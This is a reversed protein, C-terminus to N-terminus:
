CCSSTPTDTTGKIDTTTATATPSTFTISSSLDSSTSSSTTNTSTSNSSPDIITRSITYSMDLVPGPLKISGDKIKSVMNSVVGELNVKPATTNFSASTSINDNTISTAPPQELIHTQVITSGAIVNTIRLQESPINLVAAIKYIMDLNNQNSFFSEISIDMRISVQVSNGPKLLLICNPDKSVFFELTNKVPTWKSSGCTQDNFNEGDKWIKSKIESGTKLNYILMTIPSPYQITVVVGENTTYVSSSLPKTYTEFTYSYDDWDADFLQFKLLKPITSAFTINYKKNLTIISPFIPARLFSPYGIECSHDMFSNLKNNFTEYPDLDIVNTPAISRSKAEDEKNEYFLIGMKKQPSCALVNWQKVATCSSLIQFPTYIIFSMGDSLPYTPKNTIINNTSNSYNPVIYKKSVSSTSTSTLTSTTSTSISWKPNPIIKSSDFAEKSDKFNNVKFLVNNQGTCPFNGCSFDDFNPRVNEFFFLNDELVRTLVLNKFNHVSHFDPALENTKFVFQSFNCQDEFNAITVDSADMFSGFSADAKPKHTPFNMTSLPMKIGDSVATVSVLFGYQMCEKGTPDDCRPCVPNAKNQGVILAKKLQKRTGTNGSGAMIIIGQLNQSSLINEHIALDGKVFSLYGILNRYSIANGYKFCTLRSPNMVFFGQVSAYARNYSPLTKEFDVTCDNVSVFFGIFESGACTSNTVKVDKCTNAEPCLYFCANADVIKNVKYQEPFTRNRLDVVSVDNLTINQSNMVYVGFRKQQYQVISNMFVQISDVVSVGSFPNDHFSLGYLNSMSKASDHKEFHIASMTDTQGCNTIEANYLNTKGVYLFDIAQMKTTIVNCGWGEDSGSIKINRTIMYVDAREDLDVPPNLPSDPFSVPSEGGYHYYKLAGILTVEGTNNDYSFISIRETETSNFTTTTILLEDGNKWKLSKAVFIKNAGPQASALLKSSYPARDEGYISIDGLNILAKNPIQVNNNVAMNPIFKNGTLTIKATNTYATTNTGLEIRGWNIINNAKLELNNQSPDWFLSGYITLNKLNATSVDLMMNWGSKIVPTSGDGPLVGGEWNTVDSWKRIFTELAAANPATSGCDNNTCQTATISLKNNTYNNPNMGNIRMYFHRKDRNNYSTGYPITSTSDLTNLGTLDTSNNIKYAVGSNDTSAVTFEDRRLTYNFAINLPKDKAEWMISREVALSTFDLGVSGISMLYNYGTVFPISWGNSPDKFTKFPLNSFQTADSLSSLSISEMNGNVRMVKMPQGRFNDSPVAEYFAVRRIQVTDDCITGDDFKPDRKCEKVLNHVYYPCVWAPTSSGTLSGDLDRFIARRPQAWKINMLQTGDPKINKFYTTRGDSDTSASSVECRSCSSFLAYNSFGFNFLKMGDVLFRDARPTIFGITTYTGDVIPNKSKGIILADKVTAMGTSFPIIDSVEMNSVINDAVKFNQFMVNGLREAIVGREKNRYVTVDSLVAQVTVVNNNDVAQCPKSKPNFEPFIRIGYQGNSHSWNNKFSGLPMDRPCGAVGLNLGTPAPPLDMWFGYNHSGAAHNGEFFNSPNTIWFTAPHYDANLLSSSSRTVLGLNNIIRNNTEVADEIFFTHGMVDYAVNNEVLFNNVAHITLARNYTHHIACGKVYSGPIDGIMHFHIPYRGLQFAQGARRVEIYSLKGSTIINSNTNMNMNMATLMIHSGYQQTESNEDGQVIVNRTLLAVEARMDITDNTGYTELDGYHLFELSTDLTITVSQTDAATIASITRKEAETYELSSSAIVIVEGVKWDVPGQITITSSGKTATKILNTFVPTRVLGHLELQGEMVALVKNGFIPLTPDSKSSKMTLEFKNKFRNSETGVIFKGSRVLINWASMKYDKNDEVTLSGNEIVLTNLNVEAVDLLVDTNKIYATEGNAPIYEGGWTKTDSWRDLYQYYLTDCYVNGITDINIELPTNINFKTNDRAIMTLSLTNPSATNDITISTSIKNSFIKVSVIESGTLTNGSSLSFKVTNGGVSSGNNPTIASLTYTKSAQYSVSLNNITVSNFNDMIVVPCVVNVETSDYVVNGFFRIEAISSSNINPVFRIYTFLTKSGTLNVASYDINISYWLFPLNKPINSIKVWTSGDNSGEIWGGDFDSPKNNQGVFIKVKKLLIKFNQSVTSKVKAGIYTFASTSLTTSVTTYPNNDILNNFNTTSSTDAYKEVLNSLDSILDYQNNQILAKTGFIDYKPLTPTTFKIYTSKFETITAQVGCIFINQFNGTSSTNVTDSSTDVATILKNLNTGDIKVSVGGFYSSAITTASNIATLSVPVNLTFTATPQNSSNKILLSDPPTIYGTLDDHIAATWAGAPLGNPLNFTYVAKGNTLTGPTTTSFAYRNDVILRLNAFDTKANNMTVRVALIPNTSSDLTVSTFSYDNALAASIKNTDPLTMDIGYYNIVVNCSTFSAQYNRTNIFCQINNNSNPIINTKLVTCPKGCISITNLINNSSDVNTLFDTIDTFFSFIGGYESVPNPTISTFTPQSKKLVIYVSSKGPMNSDGTLTHTALGYDNTFKFPFVGYKNIKSVTGTIKTSFDGGTITIEGWDYTLKTLTSAFGFKSGNITIADNLSFIYSNSASAINNIVATKDTSYKFNCGTTVKCDSAYQIMQEVVVPQDVDLLTSPNAAQTTCQIYTSNNTVYTCPTKGIFIVQNSATSLFNTGTLTITTGGNISGVLTSISDISIGSTFTPSGNASTSADLNIYLTYLGKQAGPFKVRLTDNVIDKPNMPIVYNTMNKSVIKASVGSLAYTNIDKDFKISLFQKEGPAVSNPTISLIAPNTAVAASYAFVDATASVTATNYTITLPDETSKAGTVCTIQTNTVSQVQCDAGGAKVSLSSDASVPFGSGVITITTGGTTAVLKPTVSTIKLPVTVDALTDTGKLSGYKTKLAPKYKGAVIPNNLTCSYTLTQTNYALPLGCKSPGLSISPEYTNDSFAANITV